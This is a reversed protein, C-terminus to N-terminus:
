AVLGRAELERSAKQVRDEAQQRAVWEALEAGYADADALCRNVDVDLTPALARYAAVQRNTMVSCSGSIVVGPGALPKGADQAQADAREVEEFLRDRQM